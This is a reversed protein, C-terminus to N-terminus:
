YERCTCVAQSKYIFSCFNIPRSNPPPPIIKFVVKADLASQIKIVGWWINTFYLLKSDRNLRRTWTKWILRERIKEWEQIGEVGYLFFINATIPFEVLNKLWQSSTYNYNKFCTNYTSSWIVENVYKSIWKISYTIEENLVLRLFRLKVYFHSKCWLSCKLHFVNEYSRNRVSIWKPM